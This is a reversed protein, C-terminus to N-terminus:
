DRQADISRAAAVIDAAAISQLCEM